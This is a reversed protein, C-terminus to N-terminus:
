AQRLKDKANERSTVWGQYFADVHSTKNLKFILDLLARIYEELKLDSIWLSVLVRNLSHKLSFYPHDISLNQIKDLLDWRLSETVNMQDFRIDNEYELIESFAGAM